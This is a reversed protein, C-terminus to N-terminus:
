AVPAIKIFDYLSDLKHDLMFERLKTEVVPKVENEFKEFAVTRVSIKRISDSIYSRAKLEKLVSYSDIEGLLYGVYLQENDPLSSIWHEVWSYNEIDDFSEEYGKVDFWSVEDGNILSEASTENNYCDKRYSPDICVCYLCNWAVKYIYQPRFRKKDNKIKEVNKQLYQNICEIGEEEISWPTKVKYWALTITDFFQVYLAAAKYRDDLRMWQKYTYPQKYGIYSQYLLKTKYWETRNSNYPNQM